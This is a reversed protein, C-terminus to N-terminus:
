ILVFDFNIEIVKKNFINNFLVMQTHQQQQQQKPLKEM